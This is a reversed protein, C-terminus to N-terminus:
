SMSGAVREYRGMFRATAPTHASLADQLDERTAGAVELRPVDVAYVTFIRDRIAHGGRRALSLRFM